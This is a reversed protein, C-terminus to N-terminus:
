YYNCFSVKDENFLFPAFCNNSFLPLDDRRLLGSFLARGLAVQIFADCERPSLLDYFSCPSYGLISVIIFGSCPCSFPTNSRPSTTTTTTPQEGSYDWSNTSTFVGSGSMTLTSSIQIFVLLTPRFCNMNRSKTNVAAVSLYIYTAKYIAM